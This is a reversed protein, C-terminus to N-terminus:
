LAEDVRVGDRRVIRAPVGVVTVNAPVDKVVVANAGVKARDGVHVAGIVKAGANVTVGDGLTPADDRNAYGITVQQNIWCDRGIRRASIITAFGHQIYLGPGIEPTTIHLTPLPRCLWACLRGPLGTRHYFLNRFEPHRTMLRVFAPLPPPDARDYLIADWRAVDALVLGRAASCRWVVFHPLLRPASLGLRLGRLVGRLSM